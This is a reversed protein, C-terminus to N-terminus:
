IIQYNLIRLQTQWTCPSQCARVTTPTNWLKPMGSKDVKKCLILILSVKSYYM